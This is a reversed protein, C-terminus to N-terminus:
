FSLTREIGCISFRFRPYPLYIVWHEMDAGHLMPGVEFCRSMCTEAEDGNQQERRGTPQEPSMCEKRAELVRENGKRGTEKGM